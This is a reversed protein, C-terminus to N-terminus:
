SEKYSFISDAFIFCHIWSYVVSHKWRYMHKNAHSRIGWTNFTAYCLRSPFVYISYIYFLICLLDQNTSSCYLINTIKKKIRYLVYFMFYVQVILLFTVKSVYKIYTLKNQVRFQFGLSNAMTNQMLSFMNKCYGHSLWCQKLSFCVLFMRVNKMFISHLFCWLWKIDHGNTLWFFGGM